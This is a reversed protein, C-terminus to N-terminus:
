KGKKYNEKIVQRGRAVALAKAPVDKTITSGSGIVADDGITIPAVLQTDSGIFVNKGIITKYKNRDVAYNCTITGCGVNTGEGIEVDGLYTLHNAKVGHALKAKKLEVFNGVHASEGVVSEPRVRAYPGVLAGRKIESKEIITGWRIEVDNGIHADTIQCHSEIVCNEGITTKGRILCGPNITTDVGVKVDGEIYTHTPDIITVGNELLEKAKRLYLSRSAMALELKNNVGRCVRPKLRSAIVTLKAGLALAVLDTLYFEKKSNRNEIKPLFKKLVDSKVVYLGSNVERIKKESPSAEKEEVIRLFNGSEDRVIRGFSAPDKVVSSIVMLDCRADNFAKLASKYDEATILPHDGNGILITGSLSDVEASKVADATGLQNKQVYFSVKKNAALHKRVDEAGHGVILRVADIGASVLNSIVHDILPRGAAAHLVKPKNSKMRMGLGAALVIATSSM